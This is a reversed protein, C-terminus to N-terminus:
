PIIIRPADQATSAPRGDPTVIRGPEQGQGEAQAKEMMERVKPDRVTHVFAMKLEDILRTLVHDEEETLNGQTKEKLIELIDISEQAGEFSIYLKGTMPHPAAGLSMAGQNFFISAVDLFSLGGEAEGEAETEEENQRGFGPRLEEVM